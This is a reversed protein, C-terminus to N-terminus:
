RRYRQWLSRRGAVEAGNGALRAQQRQGNDLAVSELSDLLNGITLSVFQLDISSDSGGEGFIPPSGILFGRRPPVRRGADATAILWARKQSSDQRGIGVEPAAGSTVEMNSIEWWSQNTLRIGAGEARGINIVPRGKDGYSSLVIPKGEEGSGQPQLQGKWVGGTEFLVQDGPEFTVGNVKDLSKWADKISLGSKDDDGDPSVFYVKSWGTTSLVTLLLVLTFFCRTKM